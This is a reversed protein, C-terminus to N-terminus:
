LVIDIPNAYWMIDCLVGHENLEFIKFHPLELDLWEGFDM